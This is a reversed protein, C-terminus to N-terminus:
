SSDVCGTENYDKGYNQLLWSSHAFSDTVTVKPRKFLSEPVTTYM